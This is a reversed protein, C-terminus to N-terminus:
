IADLLEEPDVPKVFVVEVGSRLVEEDDSELPWGTIVGLRVDPDRARIEDVLDWGSLGPLGLDTLMLDFGGPRFRSIAEEATAATDVAHGAARLAAATAEMSLINDDVLLIRAARVPVARAPRVAAAPEAARDAPKLRLMVTTGVGPWSEVELDGGHRRMIGYVESLGLGTGRMGKTTFFPEIARQLTQADMGVGTDQVSLLVDTGDRRAVLRLAGGGPMADLANGILNLLAERLEAPTAAVHLSPEVDEVVHVQGGSRREAWIPRTLEVAEHVVTALKVPQSAVAVARRRTFRQIRRVTEAGDRAALLIRDAYARVREPQEAQAKQLEAFSLIPNLANNLDHAVGAALKGLASLWGSRALQAQTAQLAATRDAVARELRDAETAARRFLRAHEMAIGLNDGVATLLDLEPEAFGRGHRAVLLSGLITGRAGLPVSVSVPRDDSEGDAEPRPVIRTCRLRLEGKELTAIEVREAPFCALLAEAARRLLLPEELGASTVELVANLATLRGLEGNRDRALRDRHLAGAVLDALGTLALTTAPEPDAETNLLVLGGLEVGGSRLPAVVARELAGGGALERIIVHSDLIRSSLAEVPTNAALAEDIVSGTRRFLRGRLRDHGADGGAVARLLLHEGDPTLEAVASSTCGTLRELHALVRDLVPEVDHETALLRGIELIARVDAPPPEASAADATLHRM